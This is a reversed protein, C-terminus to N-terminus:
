KPLKSTDLTLSFGISTGLAKVAGKADQQYVVANLSDAYTKIDPDCHIRGVNLFREHLADVASVYKLGIIKPVTTHNDENSVAVKLDVVAGSVVLDGPAVTAGNVSQGLVTNTAMDRVYSLRGLELGRNRLQGIAESVSYGVLNPMTIKQPVVSNVTLFISRGMKVTSGAAPQQRYVVGGPLRRIFVSDEVKVNVKEKSALAQAEALTLNTFDPATVNKGHRTILRLSLSFGLIIVTVLAAALLVNILIWSYKFKM